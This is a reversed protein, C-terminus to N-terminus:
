GGRVFNSNGSRTISAPRAHSRGCSNAPYRLECKLSRRSFQDSKPDDRQIQESRRKMAEGPLAEEGRTSAAMSERLHQFLLSVDDERILGKFLVEPAITELKEFPSNEPTSVQANAPLNVALCLVAAGLFYRIGM